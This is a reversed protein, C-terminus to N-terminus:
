KFVLVARISAIFPDRASAACAIPPANPGAICFMAPSIEEAATLNPMNASFCGPSMFNKPVIRAPATAVLSIYEPTAYKKPINLPPIVLRSINQFQICFILRATRPIPTTVPGPIFAMANRLLPNINAVLATQAIAALRPHHSIGIAATAPAAYKIILCQSLTLCNKPPNQAYKFSM